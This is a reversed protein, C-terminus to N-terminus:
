YKKIVKVEISSDVLSKFEEACSESGTVSGYHTPIAVECGIQNVLQAAEAATMTFTGGVPVLAIDCKINLIDDNIDTDGAIYTAIDEDHIIYGVWGASQPHFQKDVNYSPVMEVELYEFDFKEGADGSLIMAKKGLAKRAKDEMASPVLFVTDAKAIKAIDDPSFHDFHDHTILVLDADHFDERIDFPDCYITIEGKIKISSHTLLQIFDTKM